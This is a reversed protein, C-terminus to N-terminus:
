VNGNHGRVWPAAIDRAVHPPTHDGLERRRAHHRDLHGTQAHQDGAVEICGVLGLEDGRRARQVGVNEDDRMMASYLIGRKKGSNARPDRDNRNTAAVALV